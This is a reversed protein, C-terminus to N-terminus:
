KIREIPGACDQPLPPSNSIIVSGGKAVCRYIITKRRKKYLSMVNRVFRRTERFPPIGGYRSVANEGANYAAIVLETRHFRRQLDRLYKVGAEINQVPDFPDTAGYKEATQPMLQMLGMAGKRSLAKPNFGSEVTVIAKVLMPDVGHKTSIEKILDDYASSSREVLRRWRKRPKSSPINTIVLKGNEDVYTVIEGRLLFLLLFLLSIKRM